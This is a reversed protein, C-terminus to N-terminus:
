GVSKRDPKVRIDRYQDYSLEQLAKPLDNKPRVFKEAALARAQKQVEGVSFVNAEAAAATSWPSEGSKSSPLWTAVSTAGLVKLFDRRRM